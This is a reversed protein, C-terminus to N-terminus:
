EFLPMRATEPNALDDLLLMLGVDGKYLSNIDTENESPPENTTVARHGFQRARTLWDKEGTHRYLNLFAYACGAAGCCVNHFHCSQEWVGWAAKRALDLYSEQGFLKHALTWLFVHGANGNCWGPVYGNNGSSVDGARQNQWAWLLGRGSPAACEALENLRRELGSPLIKSFEEATVEARIECWRLAAYLVGAWGHAMGLYSVETSESVPGLADVRQWISRMTEDGFEILPDLDLFQADRANELLLACGNLVSSQGLTLDLNETEGQSAAIFAEIARQNTVPDALARSISARVFHLGGAMHHMSIGSVAEKTIELKNNYFANEDAIYGQTKTIWLDALALMQPDDRNCALRLLAYAIGAAGYNASATPLAHGEGIESRFLRGAPQL